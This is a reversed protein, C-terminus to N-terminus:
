EPVPFGCSDVDADATEVGGAGRVAAAGADHATEVVGAGRVAAAGADHPPPPPLLLFAEEGFILAEDAAAAQLVEATLKSAAAGAAAAAAVAAAAVKKAEAAGMEFADDPRPPHAAPLPAHTSPFRQEVAYHMESLPPPRGVAGVTSAPHRRSLVYLAGFGVGLVPLWHVALSSRARALM